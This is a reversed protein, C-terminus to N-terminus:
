TWAAPHDKLWSDEAVDVWRNAYYRIWEHAPMDPKGWANVRDQVSWLV